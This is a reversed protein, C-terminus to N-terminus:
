SDRSMPMESPDCLFEGRPCAQLCSYSRGADPPHEKVRRGTMVHPPADTKTSCGGASGETTGAESPDSWCTSGLSRTPSIQVNSQNPKAPPYRPALAHPPPAARQLPPPRLVAFTSHLDSTAQYFPTQGTPPPSSPSLYPCLSLYM